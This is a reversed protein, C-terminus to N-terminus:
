FVCGFEIKALNKIRSKETKGNNVGSERIMVVSTSVSLYFGSERRGGGLERSEQRGGEAERRRASERQSEQCDAVREYIILLKRGSEIPRDTLSANTNFCLIVSMGPSPMPGSTVPAVM